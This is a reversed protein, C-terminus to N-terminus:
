ALKITNLMVMVLCSKFSKREGLLVYSLVVKPYIKGPLPIFMQIIHSKNQEM